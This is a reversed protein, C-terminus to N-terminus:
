PLDTALIDTELVAMAVVQPSVNEADQKKRVTPALLSFMIGISAIVVVVEVLTFACRGTKAHTLREILYRVRLRKIRNLLNRTM